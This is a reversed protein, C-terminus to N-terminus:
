TRTLRYLGVDITGHRFGAECYTLYYNWVRRFHEDFGLAEIRPWAENFRRRWEAVTLAYSAGFRRIEVFGLGAHDAQQRMMPVTPLMGGPFIYRQIFDPNRRYDDYLDDRITIAQIVAAGGPRLRDRITRFYAPWNDEGVAEIMEISVLRDFTGRTDRYDEFRVDARAALPGIALRERAARLQQNSITIATVHSGRGAIEEALVGWGCGIELVEHGPRLDLAEIICAHKAAQAEELTMDPRVYIGSSYSMGADLWLAYFANGLDYHEAINRRSGERTNSRAAHYLVDRRASRKVGPLGAALGAENDLLFRFLAGLDDTEVERNVYADAFGLLGRRAIKWVARYSALSLSAQAGGGNGVVASRGSPLTLQLRGTGAQRLVIRLADLLAADAIRRLGRGRSQLIIPAEIAASLPELM